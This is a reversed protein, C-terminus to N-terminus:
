LKELKTSLDYVCLSSPHFRVTFDFPLGPKFYKPTDKFSVVYPSEVIQIGTKEKEVM